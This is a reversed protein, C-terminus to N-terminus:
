DMIGAQGYDYKTYENELYFEISKFLEERLRNKMYVSSRSLYLYVIFPADCLKRCGWNEKLLNILQGNWWANWKLQLYCLHHASKWLAAPIYPANSCLGCTCDYFLAYGYNIGMFVEKKKGVFFGGVFTSLIYAMIIGGGIVTGSLDMKLMLFSLLLLVFATIIFSFLVGRLLATAKANQRLVKDM